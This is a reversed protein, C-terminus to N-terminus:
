SQFVMKSASDMVSDPQFPLKIHVPVSTPTSAEVELRVITTGSSTTEWSVHALMSVEDNNRRLPVTANLVRFLGIRPQFSIAAWGPQAPCLGVVEAMYEYIPVSGWAHCDSRQSVTDEEWTTLNLALQSEWPKWFQHFHEEYASGGVQSLARLTYHSMSISAQTFKSDSEPELCCKLLRQGNEGSLAGSLVAWIQNHQSYDSVPDAHAALGDTFFQGDFCQSHIANALREARCSYEEGVAVRGLASALHAARKLTYAYLNNTYTSVGTRDVAPPVGYPRWPEAWDTFHWIGCRNDVGVLDLEPVILADFYGLVADAVPIFKRIFAKDNFYILHDDLMCVWFLSFHPILQSKHSPARSCTLGISPNFSNHIQMIAQRALRDDGSLYYTFLCSSRTDMAYQLQEYFPCDEYCDHMCNNLTRISTFWLQNAMSKEGLAEFRAAVDLPYEVSEINISKFILESKGVDIKVRIFRFTRFHFPEFNEEENLQGNELSHWSIGDPGQFHYIDEPGFLSKFLDRRDGKTRLYPTLRPTDEYSESYKVTMLTGSSAPRRFCLSFFATTHHPVELDFQHSTFPALHIPTQPTAEPPQNVLLKEWDDLRIDSIVNHIASAHFQSSRYRPIQRPSLNWPVSNGTSTQFELTKAPFWMTKASPTVYEYIHLFDDEPEDIRLLTSTDIACNWSSSSQIRGRWPSQEDSTTIKLGGCPLRPFSTAYPTAYFFRLVTVSISNKGLNLFPGIDVEDYFWVNKDGKVPGFSVVKHNVYLKYRTDATICIKLSTLPHTLSLARKFHVFLGATDTRDESFNPHWMWSADIQHGQAM